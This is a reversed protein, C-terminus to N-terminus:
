LLMAILATIAIVAQMLHAVDPAAMQVNSVAERGSKDRVVIKVGDGSSSEEIQVAYAGAAASQRGASADVAQGLRQNKAQIRMDLVEDARRIASVLADTLGAGPVRTGAPAEGRPAATGGAAAASADAEADAPPSSRAGLDEIAWSPAEYWKDGDDYDIRYTGDANRGVITGPYMRKTLQSNGQQYQARVRAGVSWGGAEGAPREPGPGGAEGHATRARWFVLLCDLADLGLRRWLADFLEDASNAGVM